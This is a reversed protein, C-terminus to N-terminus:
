LIRRQVTGEAKSTDAKKIAEDLLEAHRNVENMDCNEIDGRGFPFQFGNSFASRIKTAEKETM